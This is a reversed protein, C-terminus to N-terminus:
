YMVPLWQWLTGTAEMEAYPDKTKVGRVLVLTPALLHPTSVGVRQFPRILSRLMRSYSSILLYLYM